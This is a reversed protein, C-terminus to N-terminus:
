LRVARRLLHLVDHLGHQDGSPKAAMGYVLNCISWSICGIRVPFLRRLPSSERWLVSSVSCALIAISFIGCHYPESRRVLMFGCSMLSSPNSSRLVGCKSKCDIVDDVLAVFLLAQTLALRETCQVRLGQQCPANHLYIALDSCSPMVPIHRWLYGLVLVRGGHIGLNKVTLSEPEQAGLFHWPLLRGAAAAQSVLHGHMLKMKVYLMGQTHEGAFVVEM